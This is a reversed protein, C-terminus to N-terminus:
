CAGAYAAALGARSVRMCGGAGRRGQRGRGDGEEYQGVGRGNDVCARQLMGDAYARRTAVRAPMRSYAHTCICAPAPMLTCAYMYMCIYAHTSMLSCVCVCM